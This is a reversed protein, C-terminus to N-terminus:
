IKFYLKMILLDYTLIGLINNETMVLVSNVRLDRMNKAAVQISDSPAVVAFSLHSLIVFM